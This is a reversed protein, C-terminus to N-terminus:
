KNTIMFKNYNIKFPLRFLKDLHKEALVFTLVISIIMSFVILELASNDFFRYWDQYDCVERILRHLIYITLTRSGIFSVITKKKPCLSMIAFMMVAALIYWTMRLMIAKWLVTDLHIYSQNAWLIGAYRDIFPLLMIIGLSIMILVAMMLIRIKGTTLKKIIKADFYYGGIFFPLFVVVRSFALVDGIYNEMGILLGFTIAMVMGVIPKFKAFLPLALFWFFLALLYWPTSGSALFQGNFPNGAVVNGTIELLVSYIMFLILYGLLKNVQPVDKKMYSKAFFGSVFIFAPMHFIYIFYILAKISNGKDIVPILFHGLVVLFILIAKLNDWYYDRKIEM